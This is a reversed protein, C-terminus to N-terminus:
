CCLKMFIVVLDNLCRFLLMQLCGVLMVLGGVLLLVFSYRCHTVQLEIASVPLSLSGEENILELPKELSIPPPSFVPISPSLYTSEDTWNYFEEAPSSRDAEDKDEKNEKDKSQDSSEDKSGSGDKDSDESMNSKKLLPTKIKVKKEFYRYEAEEYIHRDLWFKEDSINKLM